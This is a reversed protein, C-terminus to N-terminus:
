VPDTDGWCVPVLVLVSATVVVVAQGPLPVSQVPVVIKRV